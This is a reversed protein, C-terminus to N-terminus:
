KLIDSFKRYPTDKNFGIIRPCKNYKEDIDCLQEVDIIYNIIDFALGYKILKETIKYSKYYEIEEFKKIKGDSLYPIKNFVINIPIMKIDENREEAGWKLHSLEGTLNEWNNNKNQYYNSMIFKVPFIYKIKKNISNEYVVIDCQKKESANISPVPQELKVIYDDPLEEKIMNLLGNHLCNVKEPSRPGHELYKIFSKVIVDLFKQSEPDSDTTQSDPITNNTITPSSLGDGDGGETLELSVKEASLKDEEIQKDEALMAARASGGKDEKNSSGLNRYNNLPSDTDAM